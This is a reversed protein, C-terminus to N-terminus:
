SRILIDDNFVFMLNFQYMRGVVFIKIRRKLKRDVLNIYMYYTTMNEWATM